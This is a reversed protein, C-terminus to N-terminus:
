QANFIFSFELDVVYYAILKLINYYTFNLLGFSVFIESNSKFVTCLSVLDYLSFTSHHPPWGSHPLLSLPCKSGM